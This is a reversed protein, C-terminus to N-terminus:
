AAVPVESEATNQKHAAWALALEAMSVGRKRGEAVFANYTIAPIPANPDVDNITRVKEVDPVPREVTPVMPVASADVGKQLRARIANLADAGNAGAQQELIAKLEENVAAGLVGLMWPDGVECALPIAPSLPPPGLVYRISRDVPAGVDPEPKNNEIAFKVADQYYQATIGGLEAAMTEYDWRFDLDGVAHWKAFRMPPLWPPMFGQPQFEAIPQNTAMDAQAGFKRGHQDTFVRWVRRQRQLSQGPQPVNIGAYPATM